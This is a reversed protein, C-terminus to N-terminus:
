CVLDRFPNQRSRQGPRLPYLHRWPLVGKPRGCCTLFLQQGGGYGRSKRKYPGYPTGAIDQPYRYRLVRQSSAVVGYKM